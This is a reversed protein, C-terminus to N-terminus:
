WKEGWGRFSFAMTDKGMLGAAPISVLALKTSLSTQRKRGEPRLRGSRVMQVVTLAKLYRCKCVKHKHSTHHPFCDHDM